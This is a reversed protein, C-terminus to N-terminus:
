EPQRQRKRRRFGVGAIGTLGSCFLLVSPPAPVSAVGVTFGHWNESTHTFSISDFAGQLRIVGHVEGSGYFGTGAENLVPTGSGWYGAGYSDLVIPANFDVTNGNWSILGVFPDRVTESFTITVTGGRNLAVLESASPANEVEGNTYASGTWFNTGTGTQVFGHSGTGSYAVGVVTAGSVLEGSASFGDASSIWDTWNITAASASAALLLSAIVSTAFFSVFRKM